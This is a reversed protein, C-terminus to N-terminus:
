KSFERCLWDEVMLIHTGLNDQGAIWPNTSTRHRSWRQFDIGAIQQTAQTAGIQKGDKRLLAPTFYAMDLPTIPYGTELRIAVTVHQHNYGTHQSSFDHIWVWQSGDSIAEWPCGYADLFRRDEEPLEFHRRFM